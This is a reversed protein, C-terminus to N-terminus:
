PYLTHYLGKLLYDRVRGELESSKTELDDISFRLVVDNMSSQVRVIIDNGEIDSIFRPNFGANHDSTKTLGMNVGLRRRPADYVTNGSITGIGDGAKRSAARQGNELLQCVKRLIESVGALRQEEHSEMRRRIQEAFEDANDPMAVADKGTRVRRLAMLLDAASDWRAALPQEFARDFIDLLAFHDVERLGAIIRRADDRQHPPHGEEHDLGRPPRGTLLYLLIGACLTVDSRPDRKNKSNARFEPLRLFRNGIEQGAETRLTDGELARFGLGFDVLFLEIPDTPRVMINDPKIDRHVTDQDHIYAVIDLLQCTLAIAEMPSLPGRAQIYSALTQGEIYDTVLYLPIDREAFREANTDILRPIGRHNLTRYCAVERSMRKRRETDGAEDDLEKLFCYPGDQGLPTVISSRGQGGGSLGRVRQWKKQWM